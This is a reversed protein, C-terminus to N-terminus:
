SVCLVLWSSASNPSCAPGGPEGPFSLGRTEIAQPFLVRARWPTVAAKRRGEQLAVPKGNFAKNERRGCSSLYHSCQGKIRFPPDQEGFITGSHPEEM